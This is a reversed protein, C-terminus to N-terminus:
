GILNEVEMNNFNLKKNVIINKLETNELGIIDEKNNSKINKCRNSNNMENIFNKEKFNFNVIKKSNNFEREKSSGLSSTTESSSKRESIFKFKNNNTNDKKIEYSPTVCNLYPKLNVLNINAMRKLNNV